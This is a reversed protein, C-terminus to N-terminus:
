SARVCPDEPYTRVCGPHRHSVAARFQIPMAMTVEEVTREVSTGAADGCLWLM